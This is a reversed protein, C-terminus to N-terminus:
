PAIEAWKRGGVCLLRRTFHGRVPATFTAYGQQDIATIPAYKLRPDAQQICIQSHTSAVLGRVVKPGNLDPPPAAPSGARQSSAQAIGFDIGSIKKVLLYGGIGVAALLVINKISSGRPPAPAAKVEFKPPADPNRM